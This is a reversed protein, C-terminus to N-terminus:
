GSRWSLFEGKTKKLTSDAAYPPKWALPRNLAAAAPRHWLRLLVMWAVDAVQAAAQPLVLDKVQQALGPILGEDEYISAPNKVEQAVVPVGTQLNKFGEM